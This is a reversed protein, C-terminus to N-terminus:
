GHYTSMSMCSVGPVVDVESSNRLADVAEVADDNGGYLPGNVLKERLQAIGMIEDHSLHAFSRHLSALHGDQLASALHLFQLVTVLSENNAKEETVDPTKIVAEEEKETSPAQGVPKSLEPENKSSQAEAAELQVLLEGLEKIAGEICPINAISRKQDENPNAIDRM